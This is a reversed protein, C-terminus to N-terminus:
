FRAEQLQKWDIKEAAQTYDIGSESLGRFAGLIQYFNEIEGQSLEGQTLGRFTKGITEELSSMSAALRDRIANGQSAALAPDDAWFRLQEQATLRWARLDELAAAVLLDAQPLERVEVLEKIWYAIAQLSNVLTQVQEPTQGSLLQYDIRQGIVALKAPIELLDNRYILM